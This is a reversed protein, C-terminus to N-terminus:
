DEGTLDIVELAQSGAATLQAQGQQQRLQMEVVGSLQGGRKHAQQEPRAAQVAPPEQQAAGAATLKRSHMAATQKLRHIAATPKRTHVLTQRPGSRGAQAAAAAPQQRWQQQQQQPQQQQQQQEQEQQEQQRQEQTDDQLGRDPGPQAAAPAAARSGAGESGAPAAAMAAAARQVERRVRLEAAMAREVEAAAPAFYGDWGYHYLLEQRGQRREEGPHLDATTFMGMSPSGAAEMEYVSCNDGAM